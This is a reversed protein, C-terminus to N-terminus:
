VGPIVVRKGDRLAHLRERADTCRGEKLAEGADPGVLLVPQQLRTARLIWTIAALQGADSDTDHGLDKDIRAPGSSASATRTTREMRPAVGSSIESNANHGLDKYIRAPSGRRGRAEELKTDSDTRCM